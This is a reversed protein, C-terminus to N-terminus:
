PYKWSLRLVYALLSLLYAGLQPGSLLCCSLLPLPLRGAWEWQATAGRREGSQCLQEAAPAPRQPRGGRAGRHEARRLTSMSEICREVSSVSIFWNSMATPPRSRMQKVDM